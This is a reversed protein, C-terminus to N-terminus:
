DVVEFDYGSHMRATESLLRNQADSAYLELVYFHGPKLQVEQATLDFSADSVKPRHSWPFVTENSWEYPDAKEYIQVSYGTAGPEWELVVPEDMRYKTKELKKIVPGVFKFDLGRGEDQETVDFPGSSHSRQPHDILNPLRENATGTDLEYGDIIYKGFPVSVVYSGSADTATWQSMVSGNLALRLKLGEAPTGNATASGVIKGPGGALVGSKNHRFDGGYSGSSGLFRKPESVAPVIGIEREDLNMSGSAFQSVAIRPLVYYIGVVCVAFFAIGFGAGTVLGNLFKRLM